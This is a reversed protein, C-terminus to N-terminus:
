FQFMAEINRNLKLCTVGSKLPEACFLICSRTHPARLQILMITKINRPFAGQLFLCLWMGSSWLRLWSILWTLVRGDRREAYGTHNALDLIRFGQVTGVKVVTGEEVATLM